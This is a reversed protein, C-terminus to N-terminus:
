YTVGGPSTNFHKDIELQKRRTEVYPSIVSLDKLNVPQDEQNKIANQIGLELQANDRTIYSTGEKLELLKQERKEIEKEHEADFVKQDSGEVKKSSFSRLSHLWSSSKDISLNKRNKFKELNLAEKLYKLDAEPTKTGFNELYYKELFEKNRTDIFKEAEEKNFFDGTRTDFFEFKKTKENYKKTTVYDKRYVKLDSVLPDFPNFGGLEEKKLLLKNYEAQFDM